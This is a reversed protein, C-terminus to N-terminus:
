PNPTDFDRRCSGFPLLIGDERFKMAGVRRAPPLAYLWRDLYDRRKPALTIMTRIARAQTPSLGNPVEFYSLLRNWEEKELVLRLSRTGYTWKKAQLSGAPKGAIKACVDQILPRIEEQIARLMQARILASYWVHLMTLPASDASFHLTILLLITNRAVIDFDRDNIVVECQGTYATPLEALTKVM